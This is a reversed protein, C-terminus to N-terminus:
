GPRAALYQAYRAAHDCYVAAGRRRCLTGLVDTLLAHQDRTSEPGGVSYRSWSGTDSLPM